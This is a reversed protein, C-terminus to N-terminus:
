YLGRYLRYTIIYITFLYIFFCIKFFYYKDSPLIFLFIITMIFGSVIMSYCLDKLEKQKDEIICEQLKKKHFSKNILKKKYFEDLIIVNTINLYIDSDNLQKRIKDHLYIFNEISQETSLETSLERLSM